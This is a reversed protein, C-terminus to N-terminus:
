PKMEALKADIRAELLKDDFPDLADKAMRLLELLEADPKAPSTYLKHRGASLGYNRWEKIHLGGYTSNEVLEVTLCEKVTAEGQKASAAAMIRNHQAVTKLDLYVDDSGTVIKYQLRELVGMDPEIDIEGLEPGSGGHFVGGLTVFGVVEVAEGQVPEASQAVPEMRASFDSCERHFVRGTAKCRYVERQEGKSMGAGDSLGIYEYLGGKGICTYLETKKTATM